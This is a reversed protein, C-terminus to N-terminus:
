GGAAGGDSSPTQGTLGRLSPGAAEKLRLADPPTWDEEYTESLENQIERSFEEYVDQSLLGRRVLVLLDKRQEQAIQREVFRVDAQALSPEEKVLNRLEDWHTDALERYGDCLRECVPGTLINDERLTEISKIASQSVVVRARHREYERRRDSVKTIELWNVLPRITLGQALLSFIVYGFAMTKLFLRSELAFPLSLVLAISVAGRLGGWFLVHAWKISIPRVLRNAIYGLVYIVVARAVLIAGIAIAVPRLDAILTAPQVAAGILLFIASNILFALFEWFSIITLHSSASYEGQSAYNGVYIAATVVAIVPSVAEHLVEAAIIYTGYALITTLAIDILTDETRKMFEGVVFGAVLGLLIGGGVTVFFNTVAGGLNFTQEGTVVGVLISYVVIAIGDNLLSEGEVIIGLRRDVGLEKFLGVVAIPDTASILIGFLLAETLPFDLAWNLIFGIIFMSLLVGPIALLLITRMNSRLMNIDLHYAAEFLLGPLFISLILHPELQVGTLSAPHLLSVGLGTLVMAITYPIRLRRAAIAVLVAIIMLGIFQNEINM